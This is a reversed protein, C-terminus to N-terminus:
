GFFLEFNQRWFFIEAHPYIRYSPPKGKSFEVGEGRPQRATPVPHESRSRDRGPIAHTDVQGGDRRYSTQRLVRRRYNVTELNATPSLAAFGTSSITTMIPSGRWSRSAKIVLGERWNGNTSGASIGTM